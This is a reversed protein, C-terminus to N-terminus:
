PRNLFVEAACLRINKLYNNAAKEETYDLVTEHSRALIDALEKKSSKKIIYELTQRTEKKEGPTCLFGNKRNRVVGDIGFGSAGIVIAGGAMAELYALGFTEPASVMIFIHSRKMERIVKARPQHGLFFVRKTIKLTEALKKLYPSENGEGIITYSWDISKDLLALAKLNIHINKLKVLNCVSLLRVKGDKNEKWNLKSLILAKKEILEKEIGSYAIFCREQLGPYQKVFETYVPHSRCAIRSSASYIKQLLAPTHMKKGKLLDGYHVASILPTDFFNATKYGFFLSYGLHAVVVDPYFELKELERYLGNFCFRRLKPVKFFPWDLIKVGDLSFLGRKIHRNERHFGPTIYSRVVLVNESEVWRKVLNHLAYNVDKPSQGPFAPYMQSILLINM